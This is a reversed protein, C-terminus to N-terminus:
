RSGILARERGESARGRLQRRGVVAVEILRRVALASSPPRVSDPSPEECLSEIAGVFDVAGPRELGNPRVFSEVFRRADPGADPPGGLVSELAAAQDELTKAGHVPGGNADLLYHFHVTGLQGKRFRPMLLGISPRGLIASEIFATTNVGVTAHSHYISDYFGRRADEGIPEQGRRPWVAVNELEDVGAASWDHSTVQPHPRILIGAQRLREGGLRRMEPIWESLFPREGGVYPSSELYLLFPRDASLGVSECFEQRESSPRQEFWWDWNQAGTAVVRDEPVGHLEIAERVQTPNWVLVRDPVERMSGKSSLNDWSYICAATRVGCAAAARVWDTQPAGFWILPSVVVVDPEREEIFEVLRESTPLSREARALTAALLARGEKTRMAPMNALRRTRAPADRAARRRFDPADDFRDQFYHLYDLSLRLDTALRTWGDTERKPGTEVNVDKYEEALQEVERLQGPLRERRREVVVTVAHGHEALLRLPGVFNRLIGPVRVVFLIRLPRSPETSLDDREGPATEV